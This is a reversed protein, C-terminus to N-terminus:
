LIMKYIDKKSLTRNNKHRQKTMSKNYEHLNQIVVCINPDTTNHHDNDLYASLLKEVLERYKDRFGDVKVKMEYCTNRLRKLYEIDKRVKIFQINSNYFELAYSEKMALIQQQQM